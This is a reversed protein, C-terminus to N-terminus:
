IKKWPGPVKERRLTVSIDAVAKGLKAKLCAALYTKLAAAAAALNGSTVVGAIIGAAIAQRVCDTLENEVESDDPVCVQALLTLKSTRRYIIPVKTKVICKGSLPDKLVCRVEFETKTEPINVSALRFNRCSLREIRPVFEGEAETVHAPDSPMEQGEILGETAFGDDEGDEADPSFVEEAKSPFLAEVANLKARVRVGRAWDPVGPWLVSTSVPTMVTLYSDKPPMAVFDFEQIGDEPPTVHEFPVLKPDSWGSSSVLGNVQMSLTPPYTRFLVLNAIELVSSISEASHKM